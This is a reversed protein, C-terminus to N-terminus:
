LARLPKPGCHLLTPHHHFGCGLIGGGHHATQLRQSQKRGFIHRIRHNLVIGIEAISAHHNVDSAIELGDALHMTNELQHSSIAEINKVEVEGIILSPSQFDGIERFQGIHGSLSAKREVFGVM